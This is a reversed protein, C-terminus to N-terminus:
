GGHKELSIAFIHLRGIKPAKPMGPQACGFYNKKKKKQGYNTMYMRYNHVVNKKIGFCFLNIIIIIIFVVPLFNQQKETHWFYIEDNM